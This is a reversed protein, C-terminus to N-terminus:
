DAALFLFASTRAPSYAIQNTGGRPLIGFAGATTTSSYGIPPGGPRSNPGQPPRRPTPSSAETCPGRTRGGEGGQRPFFPSYLKPVLASPVQERAGESGHITMGLSVARTGETEQRSRGIGGCRRGRLGHRRGCGAGACSAPGAPERVKGGARAPEAFPGGLWSTAPDGTEKARRPKRAWAASPTEAPQVAQPRPWAAAQRRRAHSCVASPTPGASGWGALAPIPLRGRACAWARGAGFGFLWGLRMGPPQSNVLLTDTRTRNPSGFM